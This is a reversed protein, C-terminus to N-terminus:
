SSFADVEIEAPDGDLIGCPSSVASGLGGLQHPPPQSGGGWSGWGGSEARHPGRNERRRLEPEEKNVLRVRRDVDAL